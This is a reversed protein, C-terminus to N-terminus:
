PRPARVSDSALNGLVLMATQHLWERRHAALAALAAIGGGDSLMMSLHLARVGFSTDVLQALELLCEIQEEETASMQLGAILDPVVQLIADTEPSGAGAEASADGGAAQPTSLMNRAQHGRAVSQVKIAAAAEERQSVAYDELMGRASRGRAVSQMKITAAVQEPDDAGPTKEEEFGDAECTEKRALHGRTVAQVRTAAAELQADAGGEAEGLADM